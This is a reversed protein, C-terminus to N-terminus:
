KWEREREKKYQFYFLSAKKKLINKQPEVKSIRMFVTFNVTIKKEFFFYSEKKKNIIFIVCM